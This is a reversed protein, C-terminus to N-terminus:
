FHVLCYLLWTSKSRDALMNQENFIIQLEGFITRRFVTEVKSALAAEFDNHNTYIWTSFSISLPNEAYCVTEVIIVDPNNM